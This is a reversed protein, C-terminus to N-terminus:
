LEFTVGTVYESLEWLRSGTAPDAAVNFLPIVEAKGRTQGLLAPGLFAGSPIDPDAAARIETRASAKPSQFVVRGWGAAVPVLATLHWDRLQRNFLNTSSIGPHAAVSSVNLRAAAVRRHLEQAFVLTAQKSNSYMLMSSYPQPNILGQEDILPNLYGGLAALSSLSVVRGASSAALLPFIRATLAFHGLHNTGMQLEFGQATSKRPGGMIGANNVLVDVIPHSQALEDAFRAISELDALNLQMLSATGPGSDQVARLAKASRELDRCAMVVEAGAGVLAKAAGCGVGSNAGTILIVKGTQDPLNHPDWSM